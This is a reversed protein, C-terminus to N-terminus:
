AIAEITEKTLNQRAAEVFEEAYTSAWISLYGSACILDGDERPFIEKKFPRNPRMTEYFMWTMYSRGVSSAFGEIAQSLEHDQMDPFLTPEQEIHEFHDTYAYAASLVVARALKGRRRRAYRAFIPDYESFDKNLRNIVDDAIERVAEVKKDFSTESM